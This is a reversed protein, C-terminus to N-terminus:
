GGRLRGSCGVWEGQAGASASRLSPETMGRDAAAGGGDNGRGSPQHARDLGRAARRDLARDPPRARHRRPGTVPRRRCPLVARLRPSPAGAPIGVGTDSVALIATAGDRALRLAIRGGAPTYKVANDLLIVLLQRLRDPDGSVTSPELQDVALRHGGAVRRTEGLVDMLLRDLEVPERRIPMGADARALALLDAVLRALRTTETHAETVAAAQAASDIGPRRALELNAQILTLPARLEHSADAIFRQQTAYAQELSALMENFTGALRGLEDGSPAMPVRRSFERSRAIAGATDTMVAIPRTARGAVIWGVLFAGASGAVAMALMLRGFAKVSADLRALPMATAVVESSGGLPVVYVRWREGTSGRALGFSGSGAPVPHAPHVLSALVSYPAPSGGALVARPDIAPSGAALDSEARLEGDPAYVRVWTGLRESDRLIVRREEPTPAAALEDAVHATMSELMADLDDYHTRSHLAVSYVCAVTVLAGATGGYWLALRGRFSM